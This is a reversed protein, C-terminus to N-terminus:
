KAHVRKVHRILGKQLNFGKDCLKCKHTKLNEHISIIHHDLGYKDFFAKPCKPCFYDKIKQHASKM